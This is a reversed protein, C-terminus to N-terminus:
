APKPWGERTPWSCPRRRLSTTSPSLLSCTTRRKPIKMLLREAPFGTRIWSVWSGVQLWNRMTCSVSTCESIWVGRDLITWSWYPRKRWIWIGATGGVGEGVGYYVM